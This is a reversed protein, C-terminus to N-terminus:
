FYRIKFSAGLKEAIQQCQNIDIKDLEHGYVVTARTDLGLEVARKISNLVTNYALKSEYAPRTYKSYTEPNHANLSISVGDIYARLMELSDKNNILDALGNTNIRIVASGVQNKIYKTISYVTELRLLPEGFGCFVIENYNNLNHESLVSIIEKNDPEKNKFHLKVGAMSSQYKSVCFVCSCNCKNTINLYLNNRIIYAIQQNYNQEM